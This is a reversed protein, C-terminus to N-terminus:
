AIEEPSAAVPKALVAVLAAGHRTVRFAGIGPIRAVEELSAGDDLDALDQLCHGPLIVQEDVGRRKAEARRWSTLRGERARRAKAVAAPLRPRELM